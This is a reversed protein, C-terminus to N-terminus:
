ELCGLIDLLTSKGSGSPGMIALSEAPEIALSVDKLVELRHSGIIFHKHIHSLVAIMIAIHNKESGRVAHNAELLCCPEYRKGRPIPSAGINWGIEQSFLFSM